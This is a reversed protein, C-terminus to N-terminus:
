IQNDCCNQEHKLTEYLDTLTKLQEILEIMNDEGFRNILETLVQDYQRLSETLVEDGAPTTTVSIKRRDNRDIERAIYGKKELSNLIQSVAPKTIHLNEQIESVNLNKESCSCGRTINQMVTLENIQIECEAPFATGMRKFRMMTSFFQEKLSESMNIGM